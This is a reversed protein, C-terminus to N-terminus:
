ALFHPAEISPTWIGVAGPEPENRPPPQNRPGPAFRNPTMLFPVGREKLARYLDWSAPSNDPYYVMVRSPMRKTHGIIMDINEQDGTFQHFTASVVQGCFRYNVFIGPFLCRKASFHDLLRSLGAAQIREAYIGETPLGCFHPFEPDVTFLHWLPHNAAIVPHDAMFQTIYRSVDPTLPYARRGEFWAHMRSIHQGYWRLLTAYGKPVYPNSRTFGHAQAAADKMKQKHAAKKTWDTTSGKPRGVPRGTPKYDSSRKARLEPPLRPRGRKRKPAETSQTEPQIQDPEM